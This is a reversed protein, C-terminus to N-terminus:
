FLVLSRQGVEHHPCAFLQQGKLPQGMNRLHQIRWEGEPGHKRPQHHYQEMPIVELEVEVM